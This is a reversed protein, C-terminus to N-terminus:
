GWKLTPLFKVLLRLQLGVDPSVRSELVLARPSLGCDHHSLAAVRVGLRSEICGLDLDDFDLSGGRLKTDGLFEFRCLCLQSEGVHAFDEDLPLLSSRM